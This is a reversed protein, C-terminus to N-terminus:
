FPLEGIDVNGLQSRLQLYEIRAVDRADEDAAHIMNSYADRLDIRQMKVKLEWIVPFYDLCNPFLSIDLYELIEIVKELTYRPILVNKCM